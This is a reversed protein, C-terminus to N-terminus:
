CAGDISLQLTIDDKTFQGSIWAQLLDQSCAMDDYSEMKGNHTRLHEVIKTLRKKLYHMDEATEHSMYLAQLVPSIPIMTFQQCPKGNNDYCPTNCYPYADLDSYEGTFTACSSICCDSRIPVVGSLKKLTCKAQDFSLFEDDPYAAMNVKHITEYHNCSMDTSYIFHWLSKVLHTDLMDLHCFSPLPDRLWDIDDPAMGSKDLTVNKLAQINNMMVQLAPIYIGTDPKGEDSDLTPPRFSEWNANPCQNPDCLGEPHHDPANIPTHQDGDPNQDDHVTQDGDLNTGTPNM